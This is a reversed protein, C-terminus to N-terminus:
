RSGNGLQQLRVVNGSPDRFAADRVGWPQETPDQIVDAGSAVVAAFTADLDDSALIIRGLVGKALLESLVERDAPAGAGVSELILQLGPQAPQVLTVWHMGEKEVDFGVTYGLVDRYFAIAETVDSVPLFVQAITTTPM